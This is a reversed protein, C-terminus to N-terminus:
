LGIIERSREPSAITRGYKMATDAANQVLQANNAARRGNSLFPSDEFGVRIHGGLELTRKHGEAGHAHHIITFWTSGEPCENLFIDLYRDSYPLQNPINFIFGMLHPPTILGMDELRKIYHFHSLDFVFLFPKIGHEKLRRAYFVIDDFRNNYVGDFMNVSGLNLSGVEVGAVSLSASRDEMTHEPAGGTSAEIILPTKERIKRIDAAFLTTDATQLLSKDRVHLHCLSAGANYSSIVESATDLTGPFKENQKEGPVPAVSIMLEKNFQTNM